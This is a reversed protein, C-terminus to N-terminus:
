FVPDVTMVPVTQGHLPAKPQGLQGEDNAGWCYIHNDTGIACTHNQGAAIDSFTLGGSVPVPSSSIGGSSGGGLQGETNDGWCWAAGNSDLACAHRYGTAVAHLLLGSSQGVTQVNSSFTATLASGLQGFSNDGLCMVVGTPQDACMFAAGVRVRPSSNTAPNNIPSQFIPWTAPDLGLQGYQNDGFCASWGYISLACVDENNVSVKNGWVQNWSYLTPNPTSWGIRRLIGWCFLLNNTVACTAAGGVDIASFTTGVAIQTPSPAIVDIGSRGDGIEGDQDRGWCFAAGSSLACTHAGGAHITSGGAFNTTLVRTPQPVCPHIGYGYVGCKATSPMGIQGYGNDGWCYMVGAKTRACTHNWGATIQVLINAYPDIRYGGGGPPVLADSRPSPALLHHADDSCAALSLLAFGAMVLRAISRM